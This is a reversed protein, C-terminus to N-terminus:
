CVRQEDTFTFNLCRCYECIKDTYKKMICKFIDTNFIRKLKIEFSKTYKRLISECKTEDLTCMFRYLLPLM